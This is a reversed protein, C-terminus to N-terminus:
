ALLSLATNSDFSVAVGLFGLLAAITARSQNVQRLLAYLALFMLGVLAYNVIINLYALGLLRNSQLLTFWDIVEGPQKQPSFLVIEVGLNRRFVVGAILAAVGGARYLSRWNSDTAETHSIYNMM